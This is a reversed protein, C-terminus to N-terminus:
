DQPRYRYKFTEGGSESPLYLGAIEVEDQRVTQYNKQFCGFVLGRNLKIM